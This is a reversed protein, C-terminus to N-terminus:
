GKKAPSSWALQGEHRNNSWQVILERLRDLLLHDLEPGVPVDLSIIAHIGPQSAKERIALGVFGFGDARLVDRFARMTGFIRPTEAVANPPYVVPTLENKAAQHPLAPHVPPKNCQDDMTPLGDGIPVVAPIGSADVTYPELPPCVPRHTSRRCLQKLCGDLTSWQCLYKEGNPLSVLHIDVTTANFWHRTNNKELCLM